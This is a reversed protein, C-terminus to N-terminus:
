NEEEFMSLDGSLVAMDMFDEADPIQDLRYSKGGSTVHIAHTKAKYKAKCFGTNRLDEVVGISQERTM